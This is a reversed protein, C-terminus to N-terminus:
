GGLLEVRSNCVCIVLDLCSLCVESTLHFGIANLRLLSLPRLLQPRIDDQNRLPAVATTATVASAAVTSQAKRATKGRGQGEQMANKEGEETSSSQGTGKTTLDVVSQKAHKKAERRSKRQKKRRAVEQFFREEEREM